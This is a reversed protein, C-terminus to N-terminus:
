GKDERSTLRTSLTLRITEDMGFKSLIAILDFEAVRPANLNDFHIIWLKSTPMTTSSM